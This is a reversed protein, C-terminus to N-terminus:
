PSDGGNLPSLLLGFRDGLGPAISTNSILRHLIDRLIEQEQATVNQQLRGIFAKM